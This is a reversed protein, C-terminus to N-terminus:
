IEQVKVNELIIESVKTLEGQEFRQDYDATTTDSEAGKYNYFDAFLIGNIRRQNFAARFRTGNDDRHYNYALYDMTHNEQHFWYTFTDTYDGGGGEKSFSVEIKDYSEGKITSRGSYRKQVAHDNLFYPLLAFYVVSSVSESFTKQDHEALVVTEGNIERHFGENNLIDSVTGSPEDFTRKYAFSGGNREVSFHYDRFDFEIVSSQYRYGGHAMIAADTISNADPQSSCSFFVAGTIISIIYYKFNNINLM